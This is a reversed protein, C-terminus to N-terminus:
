QEKSGRETGLLVEAASPRLFRTERMEEVGPEMWQAGVDPLEQQPGVRPPGSCVNGNDGKVLATKRQFAWWGLWVARGVEESLGVLGWVAQVCTSPTEWSGRQAWGRPARVTQPGQLRPEEVPAPPVAQVSPARQPCWQEQGETHCSQTMVRPICNLALCSVKRM